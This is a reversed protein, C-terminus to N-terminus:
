VRLFLINVPSEVGLLLSSLLPGKVRLFAQNTPVASVFGFWVALDLTAPHDIWAIFGKLGTSWNM